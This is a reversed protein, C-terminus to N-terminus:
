KKALKQYLKIYQKASEDWSFNSRMGQKIKEQWKRKDQYLSISKKATDVLGSTTYDDFVFGNTENITDALGGTKYVLPLTGYKLSIM